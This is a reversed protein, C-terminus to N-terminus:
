VLVPGKGIGLDVGQEEVGCLSLGWGWGRWGGRGRGSWGQRQKEFLQVGVVLVWTSFLVWWALHHYKDKPHPQPKNSPSMPSTSATTQPLNTVDINDRHSLNTVDINDNHNHNIVDISTSISSFYIKLLHRLSLSSVAHLFTFPLIWISWLWNFSWHNFNLECNISQNTISIRLRIWLWNFSWHNFNEIYNVILQIILAQFKWDLERGISYIILSQFKWGIWLNFSWHNGFFPMNNIHFVM